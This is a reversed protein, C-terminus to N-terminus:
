WFQYDTIKFKNITKLLLETRIILILHLESNHITERIAVSASPYLGKSKLELKGLEDIIIYGSRNNQTANKIIDNGKEFASKLFRYRGVVIVNPTELDAQMEFHEKTNIDLIYRIDNENRPTLIGFVDNRGNTWKLLTTTKGTEINGSLIFIM